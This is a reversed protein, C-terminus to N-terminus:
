RDNNGEPDKEKPSERLNENRLLAKALEEPTAGALDRDPDLMPRM